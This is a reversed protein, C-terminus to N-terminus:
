QLPGKPQRHKRRLAVAGVGLAFLIATQPASVEVREVVSVNDITLTSAFSSEFNFGPMLMFNLSYGDVSSDLQTSFTGSGNEFGRLLEQFIVGNNLSVIFIDSLEDTQLDFGAFAWDFQLDFIADPSASSLDLVTFLTNADFVPNDLSIQASCQGANNIMSFDSTDAPEGFGDTDLGWGSFDCTQFDGNSIFSASTQTSFALLLAAIVSTFKM